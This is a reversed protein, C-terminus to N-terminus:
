PGPQARVFRRLHATAEGGGGDRGGPFRLHATPIWGPALWPEVLGDVEPMDDYLWFSAPDGARRVAAALDERSRPMMDSSRWVEGRPPRPVPELRNVGRYYYAMSLVADAPIVLVPEGPAEAGELARAVARSDGWRGLTRNEAWAASANVAGLLLATAMAARPGLGRAMAVPLLLAVVAFGGWYRLYWPLGLRLAVLYGAALPVAALGLTVALAVGAWPERRARRVLALLGGAFALRLGWRALLGVAGALHAARPGVVLQVLGTEVSFPVQGLSGSPPGVDGTRAGVQQLVSAVLPAFLAAVALMELLYWRLERPRLVLLVAGGALLVYGSYYQVYLSAAGLVVV